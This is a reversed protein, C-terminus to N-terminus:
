KNLHMDIFGPYFENIRKKVYKLGKNRHFSSEKIVLYQYGNSLALQERWDNDYDQDRHWYDGDVELMLNCTPLKILADFPHRTGEIVYQPKVDFYNSLYDIIYRELKSQWIEPHTKAYEIHSKSQKDKTSESVEPRGLYFNPHRYLFEEVKDKDIIRGEKGDTLHVKGLTNKNGTMSKSIRKGKNPANGRRWGPNNALFQDLESAPMSHNIEGNTVAKYGKTAHNGKHSESMKAKVEPDGSRSNKSILQKTSESLKKGKQAESMNARTEASRHSALYSLKAKTEATHPLGGIKWDPHNSLFKNLLNDDIRRYTKGNNVTAM